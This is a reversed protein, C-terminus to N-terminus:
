TGGPTPDREIPRRHQRFNPQAYHQPTAAQARRRIIAIDFQETM